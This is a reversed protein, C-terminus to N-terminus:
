RPTPADAVAAPAVLLPNSRGNVQLLGADYQLKSVVHEGQRLLLGTQTFRELVGAV